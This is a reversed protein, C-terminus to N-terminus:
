GFLDLQDAMLMEVEDDWDITVSLSAKKNCYVEANQSAFYTGGKPGQERSTSGLFNNKVYPVSSSINQKHTVAPELDDEQRPTKAGESNKNIPASFPQHFGDSQSNIANKDLLRGHMHHAENKEPSIGGSIFNRQTLAQELDDRREAVKTGEWDKNMSVSHSKHFASNQGNTASRDILSNHMHNIATKIKPNVFTNQSPSRGKPVRTTGEEMFMDTHFSRWKESFSAGKQREPPFSGKKFVKVVNNLTINLYHAWPTPSFVGVQQLLLVAGASINRGFESEEMVKHNISGGITGTPDKLTILMSGLKNPMCTKIIGIVQPIRDINGRKRVSDITSKLSFKAESCGATQTRMYEIACLWPGEQFDPDDEGQEIASCRVNQPGRAEDAIGKGDGGPKRHL